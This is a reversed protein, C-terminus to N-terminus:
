RIYAAKVYSEWAKKTISKMCVTSPFFSKIEETYPLNEPISNTLFIPKKLYFAIVM